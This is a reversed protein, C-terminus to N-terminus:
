KEAQAQRNKPLAAVLKVLADWEEETEPVDVKLAKFEERLGKTLLRRMVYARDIADPDSGNRKAYERWLRICAEMLDSLEPSPRLQFTTLKKPPDKYNSVDTKRAAHTARPQTRKDLKAM